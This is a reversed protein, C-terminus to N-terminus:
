QLRAIQLLGDGCLSLATVVAPSEKLESLLTRLASVTDDRQSPDAVQNGALARAVLVTGGPRVIRLGNEVYELVDRQDADIFVLDYAAENLRPLIQLGSGVILRVHNAPIGAAAFAAKASEQYDPEFDISTLTADPAGTLLWLGSVGVGTGLEVISKAGIAAAVFALQAGTAKSVPEVGLELSHTRLSAINDPEAVHEEVFRWSLERDHM